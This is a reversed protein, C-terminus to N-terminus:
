GTARRNRKCDNSNSWQRGSIRVVLSQWYFFLIENSSWPVSHPKLAVSQLSSFFIAHEFSRTKSSRTRPQHRIKNSFRRLVTAFSPRWPKKWGSRSGSWAIARHFYHHFVLHFEGPSRRQTKRARRRASTVTRAGSGPLSPFGALFTSSILLSEILRVARKM